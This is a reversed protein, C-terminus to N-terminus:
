AGEEKSMIEELLKDAFDDLEAKEEVTMRSMSAKHRRAMAEAFRSFYPDSYELNFGLSALEQSLMAYDAKEEPTWHERRSHLILRQNIKELTPADITSGLDFIYTLIGAVGLGQPDLGPQDAVIHGDDERRMVQVQEKVLGCIVLPDHTAMILQSQDQEGVVKRLHKVYEYSWLPNLHTDPEDLLFLSEQERTFELLGLVTLLQQEGESLERFTLAGDAKRVWVRIRVEALLDSIYTSELTKFFDATTPYDKALETLADM